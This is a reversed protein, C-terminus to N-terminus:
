SVALRREEGAARARALIDNEQPRGPIQWHCDARFDKGCYPCFLVVQHVVEFQGSRVEAMLVWRQHPTGPYVLDIKQGRYELYECQHM